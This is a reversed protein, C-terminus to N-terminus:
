SPQSGTKSLSDVLMRQPGRSCKTDMLEGESDVRHAVCSKQHELSVCPVFRVKMDRLTHGTCEPTAM